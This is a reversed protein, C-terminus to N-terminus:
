ELSARMRVQMARSGDPAELEREAGDAAFGASALFGPGADGSVWAILTVAGGALSVDAIAALLRSGHGEREREPDVELAVIEASPEGAHSPLTAVFGVITGTGDAAVLVRALSTSPASVAQRWAEAVAEEDLGSATALAALAPDRQGWGRLQVAAIAEADAPVAPRVSDTM